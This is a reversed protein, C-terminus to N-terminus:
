ILEEKEMAHKLWEFSECKVCKLFKECKSWENTSILLKRKGECGNPCVIIKWPCNIVWHGNQGCHCYSDSSSASARASTGHAKKMEDEAIAGELWKWAGCSQYQCMLFQQGYIEEQVFTVM